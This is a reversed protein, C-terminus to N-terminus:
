GALKSLVHATMSDVTRFPSVASVIATEDVIEIENGTKERITEELGVVIGVLDLSDIVSGSGFLHFDGTVDQSIGKDRLATEVGEIILAKVEEPNM